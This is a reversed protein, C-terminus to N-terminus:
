VVDGLTISQSLQRAGPGLPGAWWGGLRGVSGIVECGTCSGGRAHVGPACRERLNCTGPKTSLISWSVNM